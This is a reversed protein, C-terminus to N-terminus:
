IVTIPFCHLKNMDTINIYLYMISGLVLAVHEGVIYYAFKLKYNKRKKKSFLYSTGAFFKNRCIFSQVIMCVHCNHFESRDCIM